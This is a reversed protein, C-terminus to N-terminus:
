NSVVILCLVLLWWVDCAYGCLWLRRWCCWSLMFVLGWSFKYFITVLIKYFETSHQELIWGPFLLTSGYFRVESLFILRLRVQQCVGYHCLNTQAIFLAHGNRQQIWSHIEEKKNMSVVCIGLGCRSHLSQNHIIYLLLYSLDHLIRIRLLWCFISPGVM